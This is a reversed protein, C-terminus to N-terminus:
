FDEFNELVLFNILYLETKEFGVGGDFSEATEWCGNVFQGWGVSIRKTNRTNGTFVELYSIWYGSQVNTANAVANGVLKRKM